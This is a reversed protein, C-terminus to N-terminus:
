YIFFGSLMNCSGPRMNFSRDNSPIAVLSFFVCLSLRTALLVKCFFAMIKFRSDSQTNHFFYKLLKNYSM